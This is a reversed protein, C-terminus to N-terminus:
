LAYGLEVCLTLANLLPGSGSGHQPETPAADLQDIILDLAEVDSRAALERARTLSDALLEIDGLDASVVALEIQSCALTGDDDLIAVPESAILRETEALEFEHLEEETMDAILADAQGDSVADAGLNPAQDGDTDGTTDGASDATAANDDDSDAQLQEAIDDDSGPDEESDSGVGGSDSDHPLQEPTDVAPGADSDTSTTCAALTFLTVVTATSAALIPISRPRRM